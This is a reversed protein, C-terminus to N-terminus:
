ELTPSGLSSDYVLSRDRILLTTTAESSRGELEEYDSPAMMRMPITPIENYDYGQFSMGDLDDTYNIVYVFKAGRTMMEHYKVTFNDYGRHLIVIRDEFPNIYYAPNAIGRDENYLRIYIDIGKEPEPAGEWGYNYYYGQYYYYDISLMLWSDYDRNRIRDDHLVLPIGTYTALKPSMRNTYKSELDSLEFYPIFSSSALTSTNQTIEVANSFDPNDIDENSIIYTSLQKGYTELGTIDFECVSDSSNIAIIWNDELVPVSIRNGADITEPTTSEIYTFAYREPADSESMVFFVVTGNKINFYAKNDSSRVRPLMKCSLRPLTINIDDMMHATPTVDNNVSRVISDGYKSGNRVPGLYDYMCYSTKNMFDWKITWYRQKSGPGVLDNVYTSLEDERNMSQQLQKSDRILSGDQTGNTIWNPFGYKVDIDNAECEDETRRLITAIVFNEYITHLNYVNNTIKDIVDSILNRFDLEPTNALLQDGIYWREALLINEPVDPYLIRMQAYLGTTEDLMRDTWGNSIEQLVTPEYGGKISANEKDYKSLYEWFERFSYKMNNNEDGDGKLFEAGSFIHDTYNERYWGIYGMVMNKYRFAPHIIKMEALSELGSEIENSHRGYIHQEHEQISHHIEHSLTPVISNLVTDKTNIGLTADIYRSNPSSPMIIFNGFMKIVRKGTYKHISTRGVSLASNYNLSYEDYIKNQICINCSGPSRFYKSFILGAYESLRNKSQLRIHGGYHEFTRKIRGINAEDFVKYVSQDTEKYNKMEFTGKQILGTTLYTSHSKMIVSDPGETNRVAYMDAYIDYSITAENDEPISKRTLIETANEGDQLSSPVYAINCGPMTMFFEKLSLKYESTEPNWLVGCASDLTNFYNFAETDTYVPIRNILYQSQSWSMPCMLMHTPIRKSRETELDDKNYEFKIAYQIRTTDRNEGDDTKQVADLNYLCFFWSNDIKINTIEPDKYTKNGNPSNNFHASPDTSNSEVWEGTSNNWLWYWPTRDVIKVIVDEEPIYNNYRDSTDLTMRTDGYNGISNDSSPLKSKSAILDTFITTLQTRLIEKTLYNNNSFSYDVEVETQNNYFEQKDLPISIRVTDTNQPINTLSTKYYGNNKGDSRQFTDALENSSPLDKDQEIIRETLKPGSERQINSTNVSLNDTSIYNWPIIQYKNSDPYSIDEYFLRQLHAKDQVCGYYKVAKENDSVNLPISNIFICSGYGYWMRAYEPLKWIVTLENYSYDIEEGNILTSYPNFSFQTPSEDNEFKVEFEGANSSQNINSSFVHEITEDGKTVKVASIPYSEFFLHSSFDQVLNSQLEQLDTSTTGDSKGLIFELSIDGHSMKTYTYVGRHNIIDQWYISDNLICEAQTNINETKSPPLLEITKLFNYSPGGINNHSLVGPIYSVIGTPYKVPTYEVDRSYGNIIDDVDQIKKNTNQIDSQTGEMFSNVSTNNMQIDDTVKLSKINLTGNGGTIAM